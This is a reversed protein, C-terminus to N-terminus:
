DILKVASVYKFVDIVRDCVLQDILGRESTDICNTLCIQVLKQLPCKMDTNMILSWDKESDLDVRVIILSSKLRCFSANTLRIM